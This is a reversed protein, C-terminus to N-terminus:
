GSDENVAEQEKDLEEKVKNYKDHMIKQLVTDFQAAINAWRYEEKRVLELGRRSYEERLEKNEYMLQMEKVFIEEDAIGGVTNINGPAVCLSTCPVLRAAGRAWEGLASYDPVIQPVGCAMGEMNCLSWGEGLTTSIQVDISNYILHMHEEKIGNWVTLSRDPVLVHKGLGFYATLQELDYGIDDIACHFYLYVDRDPKYEELWRKFYMLTLDQRKRPQNRNVNGFVFAGEPMGKAIGLRKRAEETGIPKYYRLDIGHPIVTAPKTYGYKKCEAYGFKTYFIALDLQNLMNARSVNESDIPIYAVLPVRKVLDESLQKAAVAEGIVKFYQTIVWPDNIMLVVDPQLKQMLEPLRYEGYRGGRGGLDSPYIPYPYQHPDGRYNLGLVHIDWKHILYNCISHNVKAFGTPAVADAVILLKAINPKAKRDKEEVPKLEPFWGWKQKFYYRNKVFQKDLDEQKIQGTKRAASGFHVVPANYACVAQIQEQELRCHMDNDEFYGLEFGEDFSGVRSFTRSNILFGIFNPNSSVEEQGKYTLLAKPDSGISVVTVFEYAGREEYGYWGMLNDFTTPAFVLDNNIVFIPDYGAELAKIIGLNWSRAVGLNEKQKLYTVRAADLENFSNVWDQIQSDPSNDIIFWHYEYKETNFSEFTQKTQELCGLCPMVVGIKYKLNM